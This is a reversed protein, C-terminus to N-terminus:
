VKKELRDLIAVLAALTKNLLSEAINLAPSFSVCEGNVGCPTLLFGESRLENTVHIANAPEVFEKAIMLGRGRIDRISPREALNKKLALLFQNGVILSREVLKQESIVALTALAVRCSYPHGFFTGTHIAEGENRPWAQMVEQTGLCASLPMGGGLAKGLCLLDCPVATAFTMRGSRGLGTFVEDFILLCNEKECFSRLLKLWTLPASRFGGRCQIPEVIIAAPKIGESKFVDFASQIHEASCVFPLHQVHKVNLWSAFPDRFKPQGALALSGLEVGHYAGEFSIFGSGKTALIATKMALEVAQSGTVSLLVQRLHSPFLALLAEMLEIKSRSPFLDGMGHSILNDQDRLKARIEDNNHGLPLAGFGACLDIYSNGDVDWVLSNKAQELVLASAPRFTADQGEVALLRKFWLQNKM